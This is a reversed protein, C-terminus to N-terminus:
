KTVEKLELQTLHLILCYREKNIRGELFGRYATGGQYFILPENGKPGGGVFMLANDNHLSKAIDYLFDYTLGNVHKLQYKRAFVFMKIAKNKPIRKGTCRVPVGDTNVNAPQRTYFQREKEIGDPGRAVEYLDVGYIIDNDNSIYLKNTNEIVMGTIDLNIEPDSEIIANAIDTMSGFQKQLSTISEQLTTKLIKVSQKPTGDDLVYTIDSKHRHGEFSIRADRKKENAINISRMIDEKQKM